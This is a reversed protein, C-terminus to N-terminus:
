NFGPNSTTKMSLESARNPRAYVREENLRQLSENKIELDMITNKLTQIELSYEQEKIQFKKTELTLKEQYSLRLEEMIELLDSNDEIKQVIPQSQTKITSINNQLDSFAKQLDLGIDRDRTANHNRSLSSIEHEHNSKLIEIEKLTSILIDEREKKWALERTRLIEEHNYIIQDIEKRCINELALKEAEFEQRALKIEYSAQQQWKLKEDLLIRESQFQGQTSSLSLEKRESNLRNELKEVEVIKKTLQEEKQALNEKIISIEKNMVDRQRQLDVDKNKLVEMERLIRQRQEYDESTLDKM